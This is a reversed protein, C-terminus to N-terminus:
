KWQLNQTPANQILYAQAFFYKEKTSNTVSNEGVYHTRIQENLFFHWRCFHLRYFLSTGNFSMKLTVNKTINYIIHLSNVGCSFIAEWGWQNGMSAVGLMSVIYTYKINLSYFFGMLIHFNYLYDPRWYKKRIKVSFFEALELFNEWSKQFIRKM